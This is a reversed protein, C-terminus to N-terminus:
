KRRLPPEDLLAVADAARTPTANSDSTFGCSRKRMSRKTVPTMRRRPSAVSARRRAASRCGTSAPRGVDRAGSETSTARGRSRRSRRGAGRPRSRSARESSRTRTRPERSAIASASRKTGSSRASSTASKARSGRSRGRRRDHPQFTMSNSRATSSARHALAQAERERDPAGALDRAHERGRRRPLDRDRAHRPADDEVPDGRQLRRRVPEISEGEVVHRLSSRPRPLFIAGPTSGRRRSGACARPPGAVRERRVVELVAAEDEVDEVM